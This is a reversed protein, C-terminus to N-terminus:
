ADSVEGGVLCGMCGVAGQLAVVGYDVAVATLHVKKSVPRHM